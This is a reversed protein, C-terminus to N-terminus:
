ILSSKMVNKRSKRKSLLFSFIYERWQLHIQTASPHLKMLDARRKWGNKSHRFFFSKQGVEFRKTNIDEFGFRRNLIDVPYQFKMLNKNKRHM